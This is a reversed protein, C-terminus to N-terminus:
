AKFGPADIQVNPSYGDYWMDTEMGDRATERLKPLSDGPTPNAIVEEILETDDDDGTAEPAVPPKTAAEAPAAAADAAAVPAATADATTTPKAKKVQRTVRQASVLPDNLYHQKTEAALHAYDQPAFREVQVTNLIQMVSVAERMTIFKGSLRAEESQILHTRARVAQKERYATLVKRLAEKHSVGRRTLDNYHHEMEDIPKRVFFQNLYRNGATAASVAHKALQTRLEKRAESYGPLKNAPTQTEDGVNQPNQTKEETFNHTTPPFMRFHQYWAPPIYFGTAALKSMKRLHVWAEHKENWTDYAPAVHYNKPLKYWRLPTVRLAM